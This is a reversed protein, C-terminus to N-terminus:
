KESNKNEHDPHRKTGWKKRQKVHEYLKQIKYDVLGTIKRLGKNNTKRRGKIKMWINM